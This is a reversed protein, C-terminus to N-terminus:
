FDNADGAGPAKPAVLPLHELLVPVILQATAGVLLIRITGDDPVHLHYTRDTKTGDSNTSAGHSEIAQGHGDLFEIAKIEEDLASEYSLEVKEAISTVTLGRAHEGISQRKGVQDKAPTLDIPARQTSEYTVKLAGRLRTIEKAPKQPQALECTSWGHGHSFSSAHQRLEQEHHLLGAAPGRLSEGGDTVAEDLTLDCATVAIKEDYTTQLNVHILDHMTVPRGTESTLDISREFSLTMPKTVFSAAIVAAGEGPAVPAPTAAVPAPAPPWPAAPLAIPHGDNRKLFYGAQQGEVFLAIGDGTPVVLLTFSALRNGGLSAKLALGRADTQDCEYLMASRNGDGHQVIAVDPRFDFTLQRPAPTIAQTVVDVSGAVTWAGLLGPPCETASAGAALCLLVIASYAHIRQTM